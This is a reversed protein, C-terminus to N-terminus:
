TSVPGTVEYESHTISCNNLIIISTLNNNGHVFHEMQYSLMCCQVHITEAGSGFWGWRPDRDCSVPLSRRQPQNPDPVSVLM